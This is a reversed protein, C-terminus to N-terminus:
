SKPIARPSIAILAFGAVTALSCAITVAFLHQQLWVSLEPVEDRAIPLGILNNLAHLIVGPILSDSRIALWALPIGIMFTPLAQVLNRHYLSFLAASIAIAAVTPLRTALGRALVGRFVLEEGIPAMVVLTLIAMPLPSRQIAQNLGPPATVDLQSALAALLWMSILWVSAGLVVAAALHRPSARTIGLLRLRSQEPTVRGWAIAAVIPIAVLMAQGCLLGVARPALAGVVLFSACAVAVVVSALAPDLAVRATHYLQGTRPETTPSTM